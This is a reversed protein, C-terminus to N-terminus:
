DLLNGTWLNNVCCIAVTKYFPCFLQGVSGSLKAIAYKVFFESDFVADSDM